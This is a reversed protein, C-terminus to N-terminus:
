QSMEGHKVLMGYKFADACTFYFGYYLLIFANCFCAANKAYYKVTIALWMSDCPRLRIDRM